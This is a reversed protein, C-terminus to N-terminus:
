SLGAKRRRLRGRTTNQDTAGIQVENSQRGRRLLNAREFGIPRRIRPLFNHVAKEGRRAVTLAPSAVPEVHHAESLAGTEFAVFVAGEHPAVAIVHDLREVVVLGVGVEDSLLYVPVLEDLSPAFLLRNQIGALFGIVWNG